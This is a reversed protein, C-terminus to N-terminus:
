RTRLKPNLIADMAFGIFAFTMGVVAIALGPPIVWWWLGHMVAGGNFADHLIQGWTVVTPDGLGLLSVTAETVIASPVFLAMSAFAYPILMPVMHKFIIRRDSSGIAHAAEIYTEEKIQLGISRVTKVPGVWSLGCMLGILIWISPKLIASLVIMIPLFPISVFIEFIRQMLSDVWGGFYASTVGYVVGIVVSVVATLLGILLAWKLGVVIGSWIDRKSNDTGLLGHVQGPVVLYMEENSDPSETLYLFAKITYIGKESFFVATPDVLESGEIGRDALIGKAIKVAEPEKGIPIRIRSAGVSLGRRVLEIEEGAPNLLNLSIMSGKPIEINWYFIVDQPPEDCTRNYFFSAKVISSGDVEEVTHEHPKILQTEPLKKSSFLNIWTPAARVPSDEWYEQDRWRSSAEDYDILVPEAILVVVLLILLVIGALGTKVRKFEDWFDDLSAKIESLKM